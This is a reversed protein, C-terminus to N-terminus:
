DYSCTCNPNDTPIVFGAAAMSWHEHSLIFLPRYFEMNDYDWQEVWPPAFPNIYPDIMVPRPYKLMWTHMNNESQDYSGWTTNILILGSNTYGSVISYAQGDRKSGIITGKQVHGTSWDDFWLGFLRGKLSRSTTNYSVSYLYLNLLGPPRPLPRPRRYSVFNIYGLVRRRKGNVVKTNQCSRVWSGTVARVLGDTAPANQDISSQDNVNVVLLNTGLTQNANVITSLNNIDGNKWIKYYDKTFQLITTGVMVIGDQNIKDVLVKDFCNIEYNYGNTIDGAIYFANPYINRLTSHTTDYVIAPGNPHTIELQEGITTEDNVLANFASGMSTFSTLIFLSTAAVSAEPQPQKYYIFSKSNEFVLVGNSKIPAKVLTTDQYVIAVTEIPPPFKKCSGIASAAVFLMILYKM